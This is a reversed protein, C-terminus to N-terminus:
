LIAFAACSRETRGICLRMQGQGRRSPASQSPGGDVWRSGEDGGRGGGAAAAGGGRAHARSPPPTYVARHAATARVEMNMRRERDGQAYFEERV